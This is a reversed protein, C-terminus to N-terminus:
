YQHGSKRHNIAPMGNPALLNGQQVTAYVLLHDGGVAHRGDVM